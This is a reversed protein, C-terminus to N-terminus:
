SRDLAHQTLAQGKLLTQKVQPIETYFIINNIDKYKMRRRDAKTEQLTLRDLEKEIDELTDSEKFNKQSSESLIV